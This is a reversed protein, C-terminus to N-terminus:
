NHGRGGRSKGVHIWDEHRKILKQVIIKEIETGDEEGITIWEERYGAGPGVDSQKSSGKVDSDKEVFIVKYKRTHLENGVVVQHGYRELAARAKPILLQPDTELQQHNM